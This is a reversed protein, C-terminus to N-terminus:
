VGKSRERVFTGKYGVIQQEPPKWTQRHHPGTTPRWLLGACDLGKPGRREGRQGNGHRHSASVPAVLSKTPHIPCQRGGARWQRVPLVSAASRCSQLDPNQTRVFSGIKHNRRVTYGIQCSQSDLGRKRRSLRHLGQIIGCLLSKRPAPMDPHATVGRSKRHYGMSRGLGSSLATPNSKYFLLM